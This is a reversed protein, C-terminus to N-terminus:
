DDMLKNMKINIRDNYVNTNYLQTRKTQEAQTTNILM